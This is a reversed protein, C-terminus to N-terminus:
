DKSRIFADIIPRIIEIKEEWASIITSFERIAETWEKQIEKDMLTYEHLKALTAIREKRENYLGYGLSLILLGIAGLQLMYNEIIDTM